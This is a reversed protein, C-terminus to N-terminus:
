INLKILEIRKFINSTPSSLLTRAFFFTKTLNTAVAKVKNILKIMTGITNPKTPLTSYPIQSVIDEIM